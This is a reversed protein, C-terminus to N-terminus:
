MAEMQPLKLYTKQWVGKHWTRANAMLSLVAAGLDPPLLHLTGRAAWTRMLTRSALAKTTAAPDPKKQRLAVALAAASAVQAQVGCLRRAIEVADPGALPQLYQRRLRWARVGDWSLTASAAM